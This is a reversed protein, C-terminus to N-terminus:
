SFNEDYFNIFSFDSGLSDTTETTQTQNILHKAKVGRTTLIQTKILM